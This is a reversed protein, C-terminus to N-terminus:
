NWNEYLYKQFAAKFEKDEESSILKDYELYYQKISGDPMIQCTIYPIEKDNIGRVFVVYCDRNLIKQIYSGVCHHMLRGELFLDEPKEPIVVCYNEFIFDFAKKKEEYLKRFFETDYLEKKNLYERKTEIFERMFNSNKVPIKGIKKCYSFYNEISEMLAAPSNYFLYNKSIYYVIIETYEKNRNLFDDCDFVYCNRSRTICRLPPYKDELVFLLFDKTTFNNNGNTKYKGLYKLYPICHKYYSTNYGISEIDEINPYLSILTNFFKLADRGGADVTIFHVLDFYFKKETSNGSYYNVVFFKNTVEKRGKGFIKGTNLDFTREENKTVFRILNKEKTINMEM